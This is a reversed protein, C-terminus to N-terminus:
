CCPVYFKSTTRHRKSFKQVGIYKRENVLM